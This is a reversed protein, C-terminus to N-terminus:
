RAAKLLGFRGGDDDTKKIVGPGLNSTNMITLDSYVNMMPAIENRADILVFGNLDLVKTGEEVGITKTTEVDALLTLTKAEPNMWAALADAFTTFYEEDVMAVNASKPVYPASALKLQNSTYPLNADYTFYM